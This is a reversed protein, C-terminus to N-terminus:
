RKFQIYIADAGLSLALGQRKTQLKIYVGLPNELWLTGGGLDAVAIGTRAQGYAGQFQGINSLNYVEGVAEIKSIGFGGIGLGGITFPYERGQFYLRGGGLNGSGIFAVQYQEIEVTGSPVLRAQAYQLAPAPGSRPAQSADGANGAITWTMATLVSVIMAALRWGAARRKNKEQM